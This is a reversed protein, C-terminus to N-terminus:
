GSVVLACAIFSVKADRGTETAVDLVEDDMLVIAAVIAVLIIVIVIEEINVIKGFSPLVLEILAWAGVLRM